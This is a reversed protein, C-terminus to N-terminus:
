QIAYTETLAGRKPPPNGPSLLGVDSAVEKAVSIGAGPWRDATVVREKLVAPRKGRM